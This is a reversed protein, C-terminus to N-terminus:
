DDAEVTVVPVDTLRAVRSPLDLKLWRSIGAPLTSVLVEDFDEQELAARVADIPEPVGVEGTAEGGEAAIRDLMVELRHASRRRAEEHAEARDPTDLLPVAFGADAVAWAVAEYHPPTMPVVVHCARRGAAIRERVAARLADGGLTQNAVILYRSM